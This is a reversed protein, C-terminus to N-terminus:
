GSTAVHVVGRGQHSVVLLLDAILCFGVKTMGTVAVYRVKGSRPDGTTM